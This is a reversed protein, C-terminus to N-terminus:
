RTDGSFSVAVLLDNETGFVLMDKGAQIDTAVAGPLPLRAIERLRGGALSFAVLSTRPQDPVVIDRLGDGDVDLLAHLGIATSGIAHNSVGSRTDKHQLQDGNMEWVRLMGGIHPTEVYVLDLRGNGDLDAAGVPNLWRGARGIPPTSALEVLRGDHLKYLALAAGGSLTSRVVMVEDKGDGDTDVLRPLLDEFVAEDPLRLEVEFGTDTAIGLVAAEIDDGLVGHPYRRTPGGLWARAIQNSGLTLRSHPIQDGRQEVRPLACGARLRLGDSQLEVLICRGDKAEVIGAGHLQRVPLDAAYVRGAARADAPAWALLAAVLSVFLPRGIMKINRRLMSQRAAASGTRHGAIRGYKAM